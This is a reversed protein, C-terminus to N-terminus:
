NSKTKDLDIADYDSENTEEYAEVEAMKQGIYDQLQEVNEGYLDQELGMEEFTGWGLAVVALKAFEEVSEDLAELVWPENRGNPNRNITGSVITKGNKYASTLTAIIVSQGIYRNTRVIGANDGSITVWDCIAVQSKGEYKSKIYRTGRLRIVVAQHYSNRIDGHSSGDFIDQVTGYGFESDKVQIDPYKQAEDQTEADDNKEPKIAFKPFEM